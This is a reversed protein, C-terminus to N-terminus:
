PPPHQLSGSQGGPHCLWTDGAIYAAKIFESRKGDVTAYTTALEDECPKPIALCRCAVEKHEKMQPLLKRAAIATPLGAVVLPLKVEWPPAIAACNSPVKKLAKEALIEHAHKGQGAIVWDFRM